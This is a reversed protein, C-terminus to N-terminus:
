RRRARSSATSPTPSPKGDREGTPGDAEPGSPTAHPIDAARAKDAYLQAAKDEDSVDGDYSVVRQFDIHLHRSGLSTSSKWRCGVRRDADYTM